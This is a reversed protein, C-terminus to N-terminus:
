IQQHRYKKLNECKPYKKEFISILEDVKKFCNLYEDLKLQAIRILNNIQQKQNRNKKEKEDKGSQHFEIYNYITYGLISAALLMQEYQMMQFDHCCMKLIHSATDYITQVFQNQSQGFLQFNLYQLYENLTPFNTNYNLTELIDKEMKKIQHASFKNHSLVIIITEIDFCKIDEIKSAIFICTVGLLYIDSDTYQQETNKLYADMLNVARFFTNQTTLQHCGFVQIMWDVMLARSTDNIKHNALSCGLDIRDQILSDFLEKNYCNNYDVIRKVSPDLLGEVYDSEIQVKKEQNLIELMEIFGNEQIETSHSSNIYSNKRKKIKETPIQESYQQSKFMFHYKQELSNLLLSYSPIKNVQQFQTLFDSFFQHFKIQQLKQLNNYEMFYKDEKLSEIQTLHQGSLYRYSIQIYNIQQKMKLQFQKNLCGFFLCHGFQFGSAFYRNRCQQCATQCDRGGVYITENDNLFFTKITEKKISM